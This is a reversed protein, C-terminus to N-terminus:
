MYGGYNRTVVTGWPETVLPAKAGGSARVGGGGMTAGLPKARRDSAVGAELMAGRGVARAAGVAAGRICADSARPERGNNARSPAIFTSPPAASM